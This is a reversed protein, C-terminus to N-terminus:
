EKLVRGGPLIGKTFAPVLTQPLQSGVTMRLPIRGPLAQVQLEHLPSLSGPLKLVKRVLFARGGLLVRMLKWIKRNYGGWFRGVGVGVGVPFGQRQPLSHDRSTGQFASIYLGGYNATSIYQASLCCHLWANCTSIKAGNRLLRMVKPLNM